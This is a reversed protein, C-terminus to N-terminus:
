YCDHFTATGEIRGKGDSHTCDFSIKGDMYTTSANRHSRTMLDDMRVCNTEQFVLERPSGPATVKLVKGHVADRVFRLQSKDTRRKTGEAGKTAYLDVGFFEYHVGNQCEVLELTFDAGGGTSTIKGVAPPSPPRRPEKSEECCANLVLCLPPVLVLLSGGFFSERM